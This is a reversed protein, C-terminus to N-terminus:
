RVMRLFAKCAIVVLLLGVIELSFVRAFGGGFGDAFGGTIALTQDAHLTTRTDPIVLAGCTGDRGPGWFTDTSDHQCVIIM